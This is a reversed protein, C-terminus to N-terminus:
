FSYDEQPLDKLRVAFIDATTLIFLFNNDAHVGVINESAAGPDGFESQKSLSILHQKAVDAM